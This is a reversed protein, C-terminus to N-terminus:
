GKGQFKIEPPYSFPQTSCYRIGALTRFSGGISMRSTLSSCRYYNLLHIGALKSHNIPFFFHQGTAAEVLTLIRFRYFSSMDPVFVVIASFANYRIRLNRASSKRLYNSFKRDEHIFLFVLHLIGTLSLVEGM